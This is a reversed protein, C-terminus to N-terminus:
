LGGFRYGLGFLATHTQVHVDFTATTTGPVCGACRPAPAFISDVFTASGFDAYRYEARVFWNSWLLTELGAGVTWGVKTASSTISFPPPNLPFCTAQPDEAGCTATADFHLWAAGATLYFLTSPTALYGLRARASADWKSRVRFSDGSDGSALFPGGPFVMGTITNQQNAWGWDGEVGVVWAPSVQWNYGAFVGWRFGFSNLHEDFFCNSGNECTDFGTATEFISRTAAQATAGRLGVDGGVYFGTWSLAPAAPPAKYINLDAGNSSNASLLTAAFAIYRIAKM